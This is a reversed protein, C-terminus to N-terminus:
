ALGRWQLYAPLEEALNQAQRAALEAPTRDPWHSPRPDPEIGDLESLWRDDPEYGTEHLVDTISGYRQLQAVLRPRHQRWSGVSSGTLPRVGRLAKLSQQSPRARHEFGSFSTLTELMPLRQHIQAQTQDPRTVLDEYRVVLLRPHALLERVVQWSRLWQGLHAWYRDPALGHISVVVDRPDRLTYIFWQAPDRALLEPAAFYDYPRKSLWLGGPAPLPQLVPQEVNLCHDFRFATAMLELLLTTGSRPAGVIHVRTLAPRDSQDCDLTSISFVPSSSSM